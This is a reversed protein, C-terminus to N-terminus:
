LKQLFLFRSIPTKTRISSHLTLTFNVNEGKLSDVFL